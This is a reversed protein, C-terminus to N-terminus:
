QYSTGRRAAVLILLFTFSINRFVGKYNNSFVLCGQFLYAPAKDLPCFDLDPLVVEHFGMQSNGFCCGTLPRTTLRYSLAVKHLRRFPERQLVTRPQISIHMSFSGHTLICHVHMNIWMCVYKFWQEMHKTTVSAPVQQRGSSRGAAGM